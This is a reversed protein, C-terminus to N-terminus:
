NYGSRDEPPTTEDLMEQIEDKLELIEVHKVSEFPLAQNINIGDPSLYLIGDTFDMLFGQVTMPMRVEQAHDESVNFHTTVEFDQVLQIYEGRFTEFFVNTKKM